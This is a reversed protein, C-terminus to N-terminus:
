SGGWPLGIWAKIWAIVVAGSLSRNWWTQKKKIDDVSTEVLRLRQKFGSNEKDGILCDEIDKVSGVLGRSDPVDKMGCVITVLDTVNRAIGGIGDTGFMVNKIEKFNNNIKNNTYKFEQKIEDRHAKIQSDVKKSIQEVAALIEKKDGNEM